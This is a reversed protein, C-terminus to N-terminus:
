HVRMSVLYFPLATLVLLTRSLALKYTWVAGWLRAGETSISNLRNKITLVLPHRSRTRRIDSPAFGGTIIMALYIGETVQFVVAKSRVRPSRYIGEQVLLGLCPLLMYIFANVTGRVQAHYTITIQLLERPYSAYGRQPSM